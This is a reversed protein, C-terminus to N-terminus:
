RHGGKRFYYDYGVRVFYLPTFRNDAKLRDVVELISAGFWLRGTYPDIGVTEGKRGSVDHTTQYERWIREACEVDQGTMTAEPM